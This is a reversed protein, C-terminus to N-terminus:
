SVTIQPVLLLALPLLFTFALIPHSSLDVTNSKGGACDPNVTVQTLDNVIAFAEADRGATITVNSSYTLWDSNHVNFDGLFIIESCPSQLTIM